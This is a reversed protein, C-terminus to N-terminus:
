KSLFVRKEFSRIGVFAVILTALLAILWSLLEEGNSSIGLLARSSEIFFSFPPIYALTEVWLADPTNIAFVSAYLSASVLIMMPAQVAGLDEIRATRAGLASYSIAFFLFAPLFWLGATFASSVSLNAKENMGALSASFYGVVILLIFQLLIFVSIGTLKGFLLQRPKVSYLIIEMVHSSKEEVVGMVLHTSALIILTFLLLNLIMSTFYQEDSLAGSSSVEGTISAERSAIFSQFEAPNVGKIALFENTALVQSYTKLFALLEINSKSYKTISFNSSSVAISYPFDKREQIKNIEDLSRGTEINLLFGQGKAAVKLSEQFSQTQSLTMPAVAYLGISVEQDGGLIKPIWPTASVVALLILLNFAILKSFFRVKIEHRAITILKNM